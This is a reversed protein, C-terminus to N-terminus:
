KTTTEVPLPVQDIDFQWTGRSKKDRGPKVIIEGDEIKSRLTGVSIDLAKAARALKVKMSWRRQVPSQVRLLTATSRIAGPLMEPVVPSKTRGARVAPDSAWGIRELPCASLSEWGCHTLVADLLERATWVFFWPIGVDTPFRGRIHRDNNKGFYPRRDPNLIRDAQLVADAVRDVGYNGDLSSPPFLHCVPPRDGVTLYTDMCNALHDFADALKGGFAEDM